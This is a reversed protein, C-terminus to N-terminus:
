RRGRKKATCTRYARKSVVRRGNTLRSVIRVLVRSRPRGRLSIRLALRKGRVSRARGGAVSVRASVVRRGHIRRALHIVFSRRSLCTRTSSHGRAASAVVDCGGLTVKLPGDSTINLKADCGLGARPADITVASLNTTTLDLENARAARPAAGWDLTRRTYPVPGHSGGNLTGAGAKVPEAPPDGAGFGHSRADITASSSKDRQVLGSVWYAHNSPSLAKPDGSPDFLYTVHMPDRDVTHNGLFAAAPAFEDNNGITIHGAPTFAWHDYRIKAQSANNYAQESMEPGVLEDPVSYWALVPINRLSKFSGASTPPGVIPFARAWLDPWRSALRYTGGGGMSYGSVDVLDPDLKYHRAVDAWMEFVDAEAYSKYSGDPGRGEPSALISGSGREGLQQAENSGLFENYNASLGHMSVVLGYGKAPVPKHPVYLAYPQLQGVYRGTCEPAGSTLCKANFDAGQGFVFHSAFIRDLHGSQPVGSDDDAKRALKAFDVQTGLSSVDGSALVDGQRRERWWSGDQVVGAHGEAITNATGPYNIRPVPEDTRFAMNFLAEGSASAGGPTTATATPGPRLYSNAGPDWLGVGAAMRVTSTGPNWAAHPIRVDIQRRTMDVSATPAPSVAKGTAADLLEASNGHVTLFLQAPSVVGAGHPWPLPTGSDGLAITFATKDAAKLTNLTVRFATSDALPKVRLEVLDAANNAYTATDTPYSLTGHKPSFMNEVQNFPDNPDDGSGTGGHDDFLFDQYLFEGDRYAEAGSVLIPAAKWIGTNQLQPADPAPAYLLDPGPRAGSDVSPLSDATAPTACALALALAATTISLRRTM